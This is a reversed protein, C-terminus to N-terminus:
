DLSQITSGEDSNCDEAIMNVSQSADDVLTAELAGLLERHKRHLYRKTSASRLLRRIYGRFVILTLAEKGLQAELAKLDKLLTDSEQAFAAKTAEPLGTRKRAKSQNVLLDSSTAYLLARVFSTSFVSNAIMHEAAQLQRLPKMKRLLSFTKASVKRTHLLKLADPDIGTLMARKRRIEDIDVRPTAAIRKESLGNDLAEILMLHQTLLLIISTQIRCLGWAFATQEYERQICIQSDQRLIPNM